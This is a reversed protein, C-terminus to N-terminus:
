RAAMRQADNGHSPKSKTAQPPPPPLVGAAV